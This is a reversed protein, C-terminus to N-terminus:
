VGSGARGIVKARPLAADMVPAPVRTSSRVALGDYNGIIAAFEDPALGPKEDIEIGRDRFIAGAKPDMKDAILVKVTDTMETEKTVGASAHTGSGRSCKFKLQPNGSKAPM